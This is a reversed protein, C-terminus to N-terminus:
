PTGGALARSREAAATLARLVIGGLDADVLSRLAAETTGGKSTVESRLRALDGGQAIALAGSGA